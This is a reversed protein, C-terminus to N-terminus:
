RAAIQPVNTESRSVFCSLYTYVPNVLRLHLRLFPVLPTTVLWLVILLHFCVRGRLVSCLVVDRVDCLTPCCIPVFVINFLLPLETVPVLTWSQGMVCLSRCDLPKGPSLRKGATRLKWQNRLIGEEVVKVQSPKLSHTVALHFKVTWRIVTLVTKEIVYQDGLGSASFTLGGIQFFQDRQLPSQLEESFHQIMQVHLISCSTPDFILKEDFFLNVTMDAHKLIIIQRSKVTLFHSGSHGPKQSIVIQAHFRILALFTSAAFELFIFVTSTSFVGSQCRENKGIESTTDSFKQFTLSQTASLM